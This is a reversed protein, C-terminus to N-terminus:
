PGVMMTGEAWRRGGTDCKVLEYEVQRIFDSLEPFVDAAAHEGFVLDFHSYPVRSGAKTGVSFLRSSFAARGEGEGRGEGRGERRGERGGERGGENGGELGRGEGGSEDNVGSSDHESNRVIAEFTSLVDGEPVVTDETACVL